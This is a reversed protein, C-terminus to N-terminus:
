GCSCRPLPFSNGDAFPRNKVTSVARVWVLSFCCQTESLYALLFLPDRINHMYGPVTSPPDAHRCCSGSISRGCTPRLRQRKQTLLYCRLGGLSVQVVMYNQAEDILGAYGPKESKYGIEKQVLMRFLALAVKGNRLFLFFLSGTHAILM